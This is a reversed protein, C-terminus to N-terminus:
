AHPFLPLILPEPRISWAVQLEQEKRESALRGEAMICMQELPVPDSM